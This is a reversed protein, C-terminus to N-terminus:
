PTGISRWYMNSTPAGNSNRDRILVISRGPKLTHDENVVGPNGRIQSNPAANSQLRVTLDTGTGGNDDTANSLVVVDGLDYFANFLGDIRVAAGPATVKVHSYPKDVVIVGDATLPYVIWQKTNLRWRYLSTIGSVILSLATVNAHAGTNLDHEQQAWNNLANVLNNLTVGVNSFNITFSM